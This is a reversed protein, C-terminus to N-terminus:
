RSSLNLKQHSYYKEIANMLEPTNEFVWCNYKPNDKDKIVNTYNFGERLLYSCLKMRKCIYM